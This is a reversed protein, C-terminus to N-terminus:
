VAGFNMNIMQKEREIHGPSKPLSKNPKKKLLHSINSSPHHSVRALQKGYFVEEM